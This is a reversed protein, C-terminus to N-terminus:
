CVVIFHLTYDRVLADIDANDFVEEAASEFAEKRANNIKELFIDQTTFPDQESALLSELKM